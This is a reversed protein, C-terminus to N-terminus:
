GFGFDGNIELFVNGLLVLIGSERIFLTKASQDEGGEVGSSGRPCGMRVGWAGMPNPTQLRVTPLGIRQVNVM